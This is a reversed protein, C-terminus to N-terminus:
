GCRFLAPKCWEKSVANGSLPGFQNAMTRYDWEVGLLYTVSM